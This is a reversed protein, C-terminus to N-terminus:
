TSAVPKKFNGEVAEKMEKILAVHQPLPQYLDDEERDRDLGFEFNFNEVNSLKKLPECIGSDLFVETARDNRFQTLNPLGAVRWLCESALSYAANPMMQVELSIELVKIVRSKSILEAFDKMVTSTRLLQRYRQVDIEKLTQTLRDFRPGIIGAYEYNFCADFRVKQFRAFVHPDMKGGMIIISQENLPNSRWGGCYSPAPLVHVTEGHAENLVRRVVPRPPGFDSAFPIRALYFVDAAELTLVGERYLLSAAEINIQRNTRLIAPHMRYKESKEKMITALEEIPIWGRMDVDFDSDFAVLDPMSDSDLELDEEFDDEDESKDEYGSIPDIADITRSLRLYITTTPLLLERYICFRIEKPLRLFHCIASSSTDM